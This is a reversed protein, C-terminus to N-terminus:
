TLIEPIIYKENTFTSKRTQSKHCFDMKYEVDRWALAGQVTEEPIFNWKNDVERPVSELHYEGTSPNTMKLYTVTKTNNVGFNKAMLDGIKEPVSIVLLEYPRGDIVDKHLVTTPLDKLIENMGFHEIAKARVDVNNILLSDIPDFENLTNNELHKKFDRESKKAAYRTRSLANRRLRHTNLRHETQKANEKTQNLFNGDWDFKMSKQPLVKTWTGDVFCQVMETDITWSTKMPFSKKRWTEFGGVSTLANFDSFENEIFIFEIGWEKIVAMHNSYNSNEKLTNFGNVDSYSVISNSWGSNVYVKVTSKNSKIFLICMSTHGFGGKCFLTKGIGGDKLLSKISNKTFYAKKEQEQEYKDNKLSEYGTSM